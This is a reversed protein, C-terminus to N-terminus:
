ARVAHFANQLVNLLVQTAENSNAWITQHAPIDTEVNFTGKWENSLFRLALDVLKTVPVLEFHSVNPKTFTRLDSVINVVRNIGDEIDQTVDAFTAKDEPPLSEAKRRLIHLGTKAFSLPNNVEHIIGASMRGLSALKESQL